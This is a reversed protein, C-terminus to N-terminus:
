GLRFRRVTSQPGFVSQLAARSRVNRGMAAERYCAERWFNREETLRIALARLRELEVDHDNSHYAQTYITRGNDTDSYDWRVEIVNVDITEMGAAM